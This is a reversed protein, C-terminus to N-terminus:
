EKRASLVGHTIRITRSCAVCRLANAAARLKGNEEVFGATEHAHLEIYKCSPCSIMYGVLPGTAMYRKCNPGEPKLRRPCFKVEALSVPTSRDEFLHM